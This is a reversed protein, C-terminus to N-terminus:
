DSNIPVSHLLTWQPAGALHENSPGLPPARGPSRCSTTLRCATRCCSPLSARRPPAPSVKFPYDPHMSTEAWLLHRWGVNMKTILAMDVEDLQFDWVQWVTTCYVIIALDTVQYNDRIRAPTVSKCCLTGGLQLHWRLVVNAASKGHRAAIALIDPHSLVQM